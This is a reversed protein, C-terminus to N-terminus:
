KKAKKDEKKEEKAKKPAEKVKKPKVTKEKKVRKNPNAVVTTISGKEVWELLVTQSNDKLRKELRLIRTYGGPREKFRPAIDVLLKEVVKEDPLHSLLVNRAIEGKNKAKTVLKEIEGKVSKAKAETTKIRENLILSSMLSRFLGKRQNATRKLKRGIIRKRM